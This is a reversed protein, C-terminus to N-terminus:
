GADAGAAASGPADIGAARLSRVFARSWSLPFRVLYLRVPAVGMAVSRSYAALTVHHAKIHDPHGYGGSADYTVLVSPREEEVVRVLRDAAEDLEAAWFAGPRDNSPDGAMGSDGYGLEVVRSVGLVRCASALEASRLSGVNRGRLRPDLVDGLDGTTCTV